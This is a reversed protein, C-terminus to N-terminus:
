HGRRLNELTALVTRLQDAEGGPAHNAFALLEEVALEAQDYRHKREVDMAMGIAKPQESM